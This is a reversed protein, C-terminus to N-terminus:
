PKLTRPNDRYEKSIRFLEEFDTSFKNLAIQMQAQTFQHELETSANFYTYLLPFKHQDWEWETLLLTYGLFLSHFSTATAVSSKYKEDLLINDAINHLTHDSTNKKKRKEGADITIRQKMEDIYIRFLTEDSYIRSLRDSSDRSIKPFNPAETIGHLIMTSEVASFGYVGKIYFSSLMGFRDLQKIVDNRDVSIFTARFLARTMESYSMNSDSSPVAYKRITEMTRRMMDFLEIEEDKLKLIFNSVGPERIPESGVPKNGYKQLQGRILEEDDDKLYSKMIRKGTEVKVLLKFEEYTKPLKFDKYGMEKLFGDATRVGHTEWDFIKLMSHVVTAKLIDSFDLLNSVSCGSYLLGQQIYNLFNYDNKSLSIPIKKEAM